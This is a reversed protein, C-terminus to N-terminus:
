AARDGASVWVHRQLDKGRRPNAIAEKFGLLNRPLQGPPDGPLRHISGAQSWRLVVAPRAVDLLRTLADAAKAPRDACVQVALDGGSTAPDLADGPFGPLESLAVPRRAALGFRRGFLAPGLGITVTLAGAPAGRGHRHEARMLGEAGTTLVEMLERLEAPAEVVVDLAGFSIHDLLPTTIGPQRVAYLSPAVDEPRYSEGPGRDRIPVCHRWM